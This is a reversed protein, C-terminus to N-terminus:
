PVRPDRVDWGKDNMCAQYILWGLEAAEDFEPTGRPPNGSLSNKFKKRLHEM